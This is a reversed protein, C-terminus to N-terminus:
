KLPWTFYLLHIFWDSTTLSLFRSLHRDDTESPFPFFLDSFFRAFSFFPYEIFTKSPWFLVFMTAWAKLGLVTPLYLCSAPLDRDIQDIYCPDPCVILGQGFCFFDLVPSASLPLLVTKSNSSPPTTSDSFPFSHYRSTPGIERSARSSCRETPLPPSRFYLATRTSFLLLCSQLQSRTRIGARTLAIHSFSQKRFSASWFFLCRMLTPLRPDLGHGPACKKPPSMQNALYNNSLPKIHVMKSGGTATIGM